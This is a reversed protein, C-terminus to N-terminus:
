IQIMSIVKGAIKKNIEVTYDDGAKSICYLLSLSSIICCLLLCILTLPSLFGSMIDLFCFFFDLRM